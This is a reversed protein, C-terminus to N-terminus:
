IYKSETNLERKHEHYNLVFLCVFNYYKKFLHQKNEVILEETKGIISFVDLVKNTM